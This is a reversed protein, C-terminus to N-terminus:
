SPRSRRSTARGPRRPGRPPDRQPRRARPRRARDRRDRPHQGPVQQGPGRGRARGRVLGPSTTSTSRTTSSRRPASRRPSGTSASTSAGARRRRQARDHHVPLQGGRRRGQDARQVALVQGRQAPRRDRGEDDRARSLASGLAAGALIDSPYHVGLYLAAAPWRRPWRRVAARAAPGLEGFAHAAAFSSTAHASPFSLGTPTGVLPPLGEISRAAAGCSSSSRRTSCTPRASWPRRGSGARAARGTSARAPPAWRWGSRRTSVWRAHLARRRARGGPHAGATRALRLGREDLAALTTCLGVLRSIGFGVRHEERDTRLYVVQALNITVNGDEAQLTTGSAAPCRRGSATSSPTRSACPSRRRQWSGSPSASCAM